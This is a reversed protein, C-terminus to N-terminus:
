AALHERLWEAAADSAAHLHGGDMCVRLETESKLNQPLDAYLARAADADSLDFIWVGMIRREACSQSM